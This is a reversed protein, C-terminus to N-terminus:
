SQERNRTTNCSGLGLACAGAARGGGAQQGEVRRRSHRCSHITMLPHSCLARSQDPALGPARRSSAVRAPTLRPPRAAVPPTPPDPGPRAAGPRASPHRQPAGASLPRVGVCVLRAPGLRCGRWRPRSSRAAASLQYIPRLLDLLLIFSKLNSPTLTGAHAPTVYPTRHERAPHLFLM